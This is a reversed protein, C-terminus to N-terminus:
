AHDSEGLICAVTTRNSSSCCGFLATIGQRVAIRKLEGALHIIVAGTGTVEIDRYEYSVATGPGLVKVAAEKGAFREALSRAQGATLKTHTSPGPNPLLGCAALEGPTFVTECLRTRHRNWLSDIRPVDIVDIGIGVIM